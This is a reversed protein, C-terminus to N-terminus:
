FNQPFLLLSSLLGGRDPRLLVRHARGHVDDRRVAAAVAARDTGPPSWSRAFRSVVFLAYDIALGMGILTIINISFISADTIMTILRVVAFAGFM